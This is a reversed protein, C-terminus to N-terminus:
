KQETIKTFTFEYGRENDESGLTERYVDIGEILFKSSQLSDIIEFYPASTVFVGTKHIIAPKQTKDRFTDISFRGEVPINGNVIIKSM